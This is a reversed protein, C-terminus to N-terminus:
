LCVYMGYVAAFNLAPVQCHCSVAVCAVLAEVSQEVCLSRCAHWVQKLQKVLDHKEQRLEELRQQLEAAQRSADAHQAELQAKQALKREEEEAQEALLKAYVEQLHQQEAAHWRQRDAEAEAAAAAAAAKEAEQRQKQQQQEAATLQRQQQPQKSGGPGSSRKSSLEQGGQQASRGCRPSATCSTSSNSTQQESDSSDAHQRQWDGREVAARLEALKRKQLLKKFADTDTLTPSPPRWVRKYYLKKAM